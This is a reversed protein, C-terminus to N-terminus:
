QLPLDNHLSGTEQQHADPTKLFLNSVRFLVTLFVQQVGGFACM